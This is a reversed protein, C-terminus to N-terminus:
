HYFKWLLEDSDPVAILADNPYYRELNEATILTHNVFIASPVPMKQVLDLALAVLQKGYTEPFFAVSGIMHTGPRRIEARVAATANQGVIASHEARGAEEIARLAGLASADNIAGVLISRAKNRGLFKRMAEMSEVYGGKGDLQVLESTGINPLLERIGVAVGTMRAAPISGAAALGLLIAVDVNASLHKQAWRGLARGGIRGALYNNGGFYVAGPHPIEVAILPIKAEQFKTAIIPAVHEHIQIEIAVDVKEKILMDANRIAVNASYRNDCELLDVGKESAALRLGDSVDRSFVSNETMAAYGIRIPRKPTTRILCRYQDRGARQLLGGIVLSQITRFATAKHFGTRTVLEGLRLIEGEFRFAKLLDCARLISDIAYQESPQDPVEDSV